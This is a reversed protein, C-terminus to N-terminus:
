EHEGGEEDMATIDTPYTEAVRQPYFARIAEQQEESCADFPQKYLKMARQNRLLNYAAVIENQLSFYTKYDAKRSIDISVVHQDPKECHSIFEMVRQKVQSIAAPEEDILVQNDDSLRISMALDRSIDAVVEEKAPDPPPLQRELGKDVDMSTTVLFFILLMFSIDATSTTNLQPVSRRKNRRLM